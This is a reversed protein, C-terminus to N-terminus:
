HIVNLDFVFSKISAGCRGGGGTSKRHSVEGLFSSASVCVCDINIGGRGMTNEGGEWM